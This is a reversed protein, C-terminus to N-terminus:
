ALAAAPDASGAVILVSAGAALPALLWTVPQEHSDAGVRVVDGPGFGRQAAIEAALAGWQRYTVGDPGAAAGAPLNVAPPRAAAFARVEDDFSRYGDAAGFLAFPHEAVPPQELWSTARAAAVFSVDVPPPTALGATAWGQYSVQVGAAWAGLLVAATQWHPPALVAATADPGLGCGDTLLAATAAAADGLEAATLEVREGADDDVWTLLPARHAAVDTM